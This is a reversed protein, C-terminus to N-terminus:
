GPVPITPILVGRFLFVDLATVNPALLTGAGPWNSKNTGYNATQWDDPLGDHNKDAGWTTGTVAASFPSIRGDPLAYALQFTHTSGPNYDQDPNSWMNNTVNVATGDVMLEYYAM